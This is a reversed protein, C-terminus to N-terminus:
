RPRSCRQQRTTLEAALTRLSELASDWRGGLWDVVVRAVGIEDGFLHPGEPALQEARRLRLAADPLLGALAEAAAAIGLAQLQLTTSSGASRMAREAYEMTESHRFLMSTLMTLQGCVVVEEAPSVVPTSSALAAERLAEETRDAFVLLLARQAHLAAPVDPAQGFSDSVSLAEDIRGLSFLSSLVATATRWREEGPPLLALAERGAAVAAAPRSARAMARCRLALLGGREPAGDKLLALARDCFGAAAEPANSLAFRAAETLVQVAEADGPSASESVHWALELLDTEGAGRETLLEEACLRHLRRCEAPGIEDYM